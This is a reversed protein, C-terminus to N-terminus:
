SAKGDQDYDVENTMNLLALDDKTWQQMRVITSRFLLTSAYSQSLYYVYVYM